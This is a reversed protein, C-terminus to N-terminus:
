KSGVFHFFTATGDNLDRMALDLTIVNNVVVGSGGLQLIGSITQTPVTIDSSSNLQATLMSGDFYILINNIGNDNYGTITFGPVSIGDYSLVGTFTGIFKERMETQCHEGEYWPACDCKGTSASCSGSNSCVTNECKNKVCGTIGGMLSFTLLLLIIFRSKGVAKNCPRSHPVVPQKPKRRAATNNLEQLGRDLLANLREFPKKEPRSYIKDVDAKTIQKKM